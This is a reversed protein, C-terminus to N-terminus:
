QPGSPLLRQVAEYTADIEDNIVVRRGIVEPLGAAIAAEYRSLQDMGERVRDTRKAKILRKVLEDGSPPMILIGLQYGGLSTIQDVAEIPFDLVHTPASSALAERVLDRPTGYRNGFLRTVLVFQGAADRAEFVEESVFTKDREGARLPRTTQPTIYVLGRREVLRKVIESKGAGTPGFLLILM